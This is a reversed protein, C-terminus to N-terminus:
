GGQDEKEGTEEGWGGGGWDGGGGGEGGGVRGELLAAGGEGEVAEVEFAGGVEGHEDGGGGGGGEQGVEVGVDVDAADGGPHGVERGRLGVEDDAPAGELEAEDDAVARGLADTPLEHAVERREHM